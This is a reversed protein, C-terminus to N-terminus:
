KVLEKHAAIFTLLKTESVKCHNNETGKIRVELGWWGKKYKQTYSSHDIYGEVGMIESELWSIAISIAQSKNIHAFGAWFGDKSNRLNDVKIEGLFEKLAPPDIPNPKHNNKM